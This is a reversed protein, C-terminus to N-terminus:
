GSAANGTVVFSVPAAVNLVSTGLAPTALRVAVAVPEVPLVDSNEWAIVIVAVAKSGRGATIALKRAATSRPRFSGVKVAGRPARRNPQLQALYVAVSFHGPEHPPSWLSM